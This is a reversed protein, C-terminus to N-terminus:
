GASAAPTAMLGPGSHVVSLGVPLLRMRSQKALEDGVLLFRRADGRQGFDAALEANRIADGHPAFLM